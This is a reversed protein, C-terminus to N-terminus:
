RARKPHRTGATFWDALPAASTNRSRKFLLNASDGLHLCGHALRLLAGWLVRHWKLRLNARRFNERHFGWFQKSRFKLLNRGLFYYYRSLLQNQRMSQEAPTLYVPAYKMHVLLKGALHTNLNITKATVQQAHVRTATLVQHVFGFDHEQLLKFCVEEDAHLNEQNYFPRQKRILDSRILLNSPSGFIYLHGLLTARCLDRGSVVSCPYTLQDHILHDGHLVYSGVLAVNPHVEALTVMQSLCEPFLWDDAHIVKCYKSRPNLLTLAHNWNEIIPLCRENSEVRFRPDHRAFKRAIDGTRDSSGNNLIIYEWNQYSQALVSAICDSLYAEGNYVPTVISVLPARKM